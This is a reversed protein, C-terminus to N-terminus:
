ENGTRRKGKTKATVTGVIIGVPLCSVGVAVGLGNFNLLNIIFFIFVALVLFKIGWIFYFAGRTAIKQGKLLKAAGWRIILWDASVIVAGALCGQAESFFGSAFLAISFIIGTTPISIDCINIINM